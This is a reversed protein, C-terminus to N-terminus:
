GSDTSLALIASSFALAAFADGTSDVASGTGRAGVADASDVFFNDVSPTQTLYM